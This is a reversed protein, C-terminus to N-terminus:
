KSARRWFFVLAGSSYLFFAASCISRSLFSVPSMHRSLSLGAAVFYARGHPARAPNRPTHADDRRERHRTSRRHERALVVAVARGALGDPPTLRHPVAAIPIRRTRRRIPVARLRPIPERLLAYRHITPRRRPRPRATIACAATRSTQSARARPTGRSTVRTPRGFLGIAGRDAELRGVATREGHILPREVCLHSEQTRKLRALNRSEVLGFRDLGIHVHDCDAVPLALKRPQEVM